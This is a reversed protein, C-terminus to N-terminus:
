AFLLERLAERGEAATARLAQVTEDVAAGEGGSDELQQSCARLRNMGLGACSGKLLHAVRAVERREGQCLAAILLEVQEGLTDVLEASMQATLAEQLELVTPLDLVSEVTDGAAVAETPRHGNVSAAPIQGGEPLWRQMIREFEDRCLPKSLYDDM